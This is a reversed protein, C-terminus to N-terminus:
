LRPKIRLAKIEWKGFPVIVRNNRVPINPKGLPKEILNVESVEAVDFGFDIIAVGDKGEAEYFRLIVDQTDEAQKL